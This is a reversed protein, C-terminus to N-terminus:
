PPHHCRQLTHLMDSVAQTHIYLLHTKSLSLTSATIIAPQDSRGVESVAYVTFTYSTLPSLSPITVSTVDGGVTQNRILTTDSTVEVSVAARPRFGLLWSLSVSTESTSDIVLGEM